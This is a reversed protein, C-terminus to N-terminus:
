EGLALVADRYPNGTTPPAAASMIPHFHTTEPSRPCLHVSSFLSISHFDQLTITFSSGRTPARPGRKRSTEGRAEEWGACVCQRAANHRQVPASTVRLGTSVVSM